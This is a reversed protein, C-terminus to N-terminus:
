KKAKRYFMIYVCYGVLGLILVPLFLAAVWYGFLQYLWAIPAWVSVHHETGGELKNLELIPYIPFWIFLITLVVFYFKNEKIIKKLYVGREPRAPTKNDEIPKESM